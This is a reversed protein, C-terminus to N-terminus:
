GVRMKGGCQGEGVGEPREVVDQGFAHHLLRVAVVRDCDVM